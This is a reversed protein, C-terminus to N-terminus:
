AGGDGDPRTAWAMWERAMGEALEIREERTLRPASEYWGRDASAGPHGEPLLEIQAGNDYGERLEGEQDDDPFVFTLMKERASIRTGTSLVFESHHEDYQM